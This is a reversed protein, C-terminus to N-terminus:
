IPYGEPTNDDIEVELIDEPDIRGELQGAVERLRDVYRAFENAMLHLQGIGINSSDGQYFEVVGNVIEELPQRLEKYEEDDKDSIPSILTILHFIGKDDVELDNEISLHQPITITESFDKIM